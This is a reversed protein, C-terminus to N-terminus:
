NVHSKREPMYADPLEEDLSLSEQDDWQKLIESYTKAIDLRRTEDKTGRFEYALAFLKDHIASM